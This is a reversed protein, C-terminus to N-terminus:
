SAFRAKAYEFMADAQWRCRPQRSHVREHGALQRHFGLQYIENAPLEFAGALYDRYRQNVLKDDAPAYELLVKTPKMAALRGALAQLYEQSEPTMVDFDEPKVVDLGADQFHFTGFLLVQAPEAAGLPLAFLLTLLLPPIRNMALGAAIPQYREPLM